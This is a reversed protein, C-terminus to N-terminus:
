HGRGFYKCLLMVLINGLHQFAVPQRQPCFKEGSRHSCFLLALRIIPYAGSLSRDDYTGMCQDLILYDIMIKCEYDSIFLVAKTYFLPFGKGAFPIHRM